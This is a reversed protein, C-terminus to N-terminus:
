ARSVFAGVLHIHAHRGRVTGVGCSALHRVIKEREEARVRNHLARGIVRANGALQDGVACVAADRAFVTHIRTHAPGKERESRSSFDM